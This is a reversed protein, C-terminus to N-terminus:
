EVDAWFCESELGTGGSWIEFGAQINIIYQNQPLQRNAMADEFFPKLDVEIADAGGQLVYAIYKGGGEGTGGTWVQWQYGQISVNDTPSGAPVKTGKNELWLMIFYNANGANPDANTWIDYAANFTGSITSANTHFGTTISNFASVQVPLGSGSTALGTKKGLFASPYSVPQGGNINDATQSTITFNTGNWEICQTNEGSGPGWANGVVYYPKDDAKVLVEPYQTCSSGNVQMAPCNGVPDTFGPDSNPVLSTVKLDFTGENDGGAVQIQLDYNDGTMQCNVGEWSPCEVTDFCVQGAWSDTIEGVPMFPSVRGTNDLFQTFGIRVQAGGSSGSIAIDFCTAAGTFPVKVDGPDTKLGLGLGCGWDSDYDKSALTRGHLRCGTADCETATSACSGGTDGYIYWAGQIEYPDDDHTQPDCGIWDGHVALNPDQPCGSPGDADSDSDADADTDVDTDADLDTTPGSRGSDEDSCASAAALGILLPLCLFCAYKM